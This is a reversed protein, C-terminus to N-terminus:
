KVYVIKKKVINEKLEAIKFNKEAVQFALKNIEFIKIRTQYSDFATSLEQILQQELQTKEIENVKEQVKLAQIGRRVKGGDFIKFNM